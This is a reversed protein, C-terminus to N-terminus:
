GSSKGNYAFSTLWVYLLVEMASVYHTPKQVLLTYYLALFVAFFMVEFVKLYIPVRLRCYPDCKQRNYTRAQKTSHQSLSDWFVIDGKWIRVIIRQVAKQSLFKKAQVVAATELANLGAFTTAFPTGNDRQSM